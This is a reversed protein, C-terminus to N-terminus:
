LFKIRNDKKVQFPGNLTKIYNVTPLDKDFSYHEIIEDDKRKLMSLNDGGNVLFEDYIAVYYKQSNPNNIDIESKNGQKDIYFLNVLNGQKDLSYTLGSVQLIGPKLSENVLSKGCVKIADVLDKENIKVKYLTNNFPFISKIDRETIRGCDVSGRFKASNIIVIDSNLQNRLADSVFDGWPNEEITNNRPIPDVYSLEGIVPSEGMIGDVVKSMILNPSFLNTESVNNQASIIRGKEDFELNLVGFHNGDRGAQTIIVPEGEPSYFLNEGETIHEILDHSHGGLIVDIGSISAAIDKEFKNGGHSLLIIKNIGQKRLNDVEEQLEVKTQEYDDVTIGELLSDNKIRKNLDPPQIGIIGYKEGNKGNIICSRLVKQKLVSNNEPFNLNMGLVKTDSNKLLDGCISATIDFEHNGLTEADYNAMDIYKSAVLDRKNDSGIFTDGSSLKLFDAGTNENIIQHHLGAAFLREMKPIQGHIDNTYFISTKTTSKEPNKRSLSKSATNGIIDTGIKASIINM